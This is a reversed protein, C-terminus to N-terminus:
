LISVSITGPESTWYDEVELGAERLPTKRLATSATAPVVEMVWDAVVNPDPMEGDNARIKAEVFDFVAQRSDWRDKARGRGISVNGSVGEIQLHHGHEGHLYLWRVLQADTKGLEKTVARLDRLLRVADRWDDPGYDLMVRQLLDALDSLADIVDPPVPPGSAAGAVLQVAPSETMPTESEPACPCGPETCDCGRCHQHPDYETTRPLTPNCFGSLRRRPAPAKSM